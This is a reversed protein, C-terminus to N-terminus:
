HPEILVLRSPEWLDQALLLHQAQWQAVSVAQSVERRGTSLLSLLSSGQCGPGDRRGSRVLPMHQASPAAQRAHM